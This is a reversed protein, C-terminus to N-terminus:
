LYRHRHCNAKSVNNFYEQKAGVKKDVDKNGTQKARYIIEGVIGLSSKRKSICGREVKM